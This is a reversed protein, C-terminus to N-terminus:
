EDSELFVRVYGYDLPEVRTVSYGDFRQLADNDVSVPKPLLEKPSRSNKWDKPVLDIM